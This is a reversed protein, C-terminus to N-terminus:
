PITAGSISVTRITFYKDGKVDVSQLLNIVGDDKVKVTQDPRTPSEASPAIPQPDPTAPRAPTMSLGSNSHHATVNEESRGDESIKSLPAPRTNAPIASPATILPALGTSFMIDSKVTLRSARDEKVCLLRPLDTLM